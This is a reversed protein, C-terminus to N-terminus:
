EGAVDPLDEGDEQGRDQGEGVRGQRRHLQEPQIQDRIRERGQGQPHLRHLPPHHVLGGPVGVLRQEAAGKGAAQGPLPDQDAADGEQGVAQPQMEGVVVGHGVGHGEGGQGETLQEVGEIDAALPGAEKAQANEGVGGHVLGKEDAQEQM